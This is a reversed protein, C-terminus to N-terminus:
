QLDVSEAWCFFTKCASVKHIHSVVFLYTVLEPELMSLVAYNNASKYQRLFRM